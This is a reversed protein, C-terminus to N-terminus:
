KFGHLARQFGAVFRYMIPYIVGLIGTSIMLEIDLNIISGCISYSMTIIYFYMFFKSGFGLFKYGFRHKYKENSFVEIWFIKYIFQRIRIFKKSKLILYILLISLILSVISAM